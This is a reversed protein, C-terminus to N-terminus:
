SGPHCPCTQQVFLSFALELHCNILNTACLHPSKRTKSYSGKMLPFTSMRWIEPTQTRKVLSFTIGRSQWWPTFFQKTFSGLGQSSIRNRGKTWRVSRQHNMFGDQICIIKRTSSSVQKCLFNYWGSTFPPLRLKRFYDSFTRRCPILLIGRQYFFFYSKTGQSHQCHNSPM